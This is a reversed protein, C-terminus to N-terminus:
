RILNYCINRFNIFASIERGNPTSIKETHNLFNTVESLHFSNTIAYRILSYYISGYRFLVYIKVLKLTKDLVNAQHCQPVLYYVVWFGYEFIMSWPKLKSAISISYSYSHLLWCIFRKNAKMVYFISVILYKGGM